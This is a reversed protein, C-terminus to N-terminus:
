TYVNNSDRQGDISLYYHVVHYKTDTRPNWIATLTIEEAPMTGDAPM